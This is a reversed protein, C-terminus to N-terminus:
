AAAEAELERFLLGLEPRRRLPACFRSALELLRAELVDARKGMDGIRAQREAAEKESAEQQHALAARLEKIQFELDLVETRRTQARAEAALQKKRASCWDDVAAALTRYAEALDAHPEQFASRGEWLLAETHRKLVRERHKDTEIGLAAAAAMGARLEDRARSADIGLADVAHGFRQRADRADAEISELARQQDISRRRLDAIEHVLGKVQQLLNSLEAPPAPGYV